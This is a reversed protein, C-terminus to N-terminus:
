YIEALACLVLSSWGNFPHTRRGEGSDPDYQEWLYGTRSWVDLMNGVLNDRLEAYISAARQQAVGPRTAYHHLGGLILFNLNIWIPGRWYPADGPANQKQYWLDTASLSRIGYDTWLRSPDRLLDLMPLLHASDAPLIRLMLPFLSIYGLHEVYRIHPPRDARGHSLAARMHPRRMGAGRAHRQEAREHYGGSDGGHRALWYRAMCSGQRGNARVTPAAATTARIARTHATRGGWRGTPIPLAPTFAPLRAAASQGGTFSARATLDPIAIGRLIYM